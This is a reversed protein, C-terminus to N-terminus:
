NSRFASIGIHFRIVRMGLCRLEFGHMLFELLLLKHSGWDHNLTYLRDGAKSSLTEDWWECSAVLADM